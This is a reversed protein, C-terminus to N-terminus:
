DYKDYLNNDDMFTTKTISFKFAFYKGRQMKVVFSANDVLYPQFIFM